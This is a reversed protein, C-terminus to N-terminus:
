RKVLPRFVLFGIVLAGIGAWWQIVFLMATFLLSIIMIIILGIRDTGAKKFILQGDSQRFSYGNYELMDLSKKSLM